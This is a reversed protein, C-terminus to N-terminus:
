EREVGLARALLHLDRSTLPTSGLLSVSPHIIRRAVTHALQRLVQEPDDTASFRAAFRSVEDDVTREAIDVVSSIISCADQSVTLRGWAKEAELSLAEDVGPATASPMSSAVDDVGRYDFMSTDPVEMAPPMGLDILLLPDEATRQLLELEPVPGPITSVVAPFSDLESAIAAWPRPLVGAVPDPRRTYVTVDTSRTLEAAVARAMAGGGLVSVRSHGSVMRVAAEALSGSRRESLMRRATRAAGLASEMASMLHSSGDKRGALEVLAHRFQSLVEAEGVQASELGAAVRALHQFADFDTRMKAAPLAREGYVQELVSIAM